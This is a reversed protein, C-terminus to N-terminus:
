QQTSALASVKKTPLRDVPTKPPYLILSTTADFTAEGYQNRLKVVPTKASILSHYHLPCLPYYTMEKCDAALCIMKKQKDAGPTKGGPTPSEDSVNRRKSATSILGAIQEALETVEGQDSVNQILGKVKKGKVPRDMMENARQAECRFRLESCAQRFTITGQIQKSTITSCVNDWEPEHRLANLLYGIQQTENFTMAADGPM